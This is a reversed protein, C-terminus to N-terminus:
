FPDRMTHHPQQEIKTSGTKNTLFIRVELV